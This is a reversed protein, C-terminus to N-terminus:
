CGNPQQAFCSSVQRVGADSVSGFNKACGNCLQVPFDVYAGVLELSDKTAVPRVGVIISTSSISGDAAISGLFTRAIAVPIVEIQGVARSAGGSPILGVASAVRFTSLYTTPTTSMSLRVDFAKVFIQNTDIGGSVFPPLNNQVIPAINYGAGLADAAGVDLIGGSCFTTTAASVSCIPPSGGTGMM